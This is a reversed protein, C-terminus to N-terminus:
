RSEVDYTVDRSSHTEIDPSIPPTSVVLSIEPTEFQGYTAAVLPSERRSSWCRSNRM